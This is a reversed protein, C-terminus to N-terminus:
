YIDVKACSGSGSVIGVQFHKGNEEVTLPGGSDGQCFSRGPSEGCIMDGFIRGRYDQRMPVTTNTKEDCHYVLGTSKKCERNSIITQTTKRLVPSQFTLRLSSNFLIDALLEM